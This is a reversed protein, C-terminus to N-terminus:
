RRILSGNLEYATEHLFRSLGAPLDAPVMRLRIQMGASPSVGSERGDGAYVGTVRLGAVSRTRIRETDSLAAPTEPVPSVRASLIRVGFDFAADQLQLVPLPVLTVLPICLERMERSGGTEVEYSFRIMRLNGTEGTAVDYQDFAIGMLCDLYRRAAMADAEVAAMMPAALLSSLELEQEGSGKIKKNDAM